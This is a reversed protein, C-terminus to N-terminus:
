GCSTIFTLTTLSVQGGLLSAIDYTDVALVENIINDRKLSITHSSIYSHKALPVKSNLIFRETNNGRKSICPSMRLCHLKTSRNGQIKFHLYHM